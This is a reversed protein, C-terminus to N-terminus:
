QFRTLFLIKLTKICEWCSKLENSLFGFVCKTKMWLVGQQFVRRRQGSLLCDRWDDLFVRRWLVRRLDFLLVDLLLLVEDLLLVDLRVRRRLDDWLLQLLQVVLLRCRLRLLCLFGWLSTASYSSAGLLVRRRRLLCRLLCIRTVQSQIIDQKFGQNHQRMTIQRRVPKM